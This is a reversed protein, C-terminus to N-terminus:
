VDPEDDNQDTWFEPDAMYEAIEVRDDGVLVGTFTVPGFMPDVITAIRVSPGAAEPLLDFATFRDIAAALPGGLFDFQNPDGQATREPPYEVVLQQMVHEGVDVRFRM